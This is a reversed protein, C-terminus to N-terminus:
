VGWGPEVMETVSLVKSTFVDATEVVYATISKRLKGTTLSPTGIVMLRFVNEM